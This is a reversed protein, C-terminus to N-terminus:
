PRVQGATATPATLSTPFGVMRAVNATIKATNGIAKTPPNIPGYMRGIGIPALAAINKERAIAKMTVGQAATRSNFRVTPAVCSRLSPRSPPESVGRWGEVVGADWRELVGDRWREEM